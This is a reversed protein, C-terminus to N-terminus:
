TFSTSLFHPPLGGLVTLYILGGNNLQRCDEPSPQWAVVVMKLGEVCGRDVTGQFAPISAVQSEDLGVPATYLANAEPFQVPKM